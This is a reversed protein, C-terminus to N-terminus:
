KPEVDISLKKKESFDLLKVTYQLKSGTGTKSHFTDSIVDPSVTTICVASKEEDSMSPTGASTAGESSKTQKQRTGPDTRNRSM